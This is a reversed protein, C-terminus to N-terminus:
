DITRSFASLGSLRLDGNRRAPAGVPVTQVPRAAQVPKAVTVRSTSPETEQIKRRYRAAAEGRSRVDWKDLISHVHNKVTPLAVQLRRAILKNPLGDALLEVIERERPTLAHIGARTARDNSRDAYRNLLLATLRPPCVVEGAAARRVTSILDRSSTDPGLYGSIGIDAWILFDEDRERMALVVVSAKPTRIRVAAVLATAEPHSSDIVILDPTFEATVADATERSFAGFAMIGEGGRLIEVLAERLFHVHSIFLIVM